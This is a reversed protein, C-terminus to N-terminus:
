EGPPIGLLYKTDQDVHEAEQPEAIKEVVKETARTGLWGLSLPIGIGSVGLAAGVALPMIKDLLNSKAEEPRAPIPTHCVPETKPEPKTEEKPPPYNHNITTTTPSDVKIDMKEDEIESPEALDPYKEKAEAEAMRANLDREQKDSRDTMNLTSQNECLGRCYDALQTKGVQNLTEATEEASTNQDQNKREKKNSM